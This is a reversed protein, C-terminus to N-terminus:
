IRVVSRVESPWINSFIVSHEIRTQKGLEKFSRQIAYTFVESYFLYNDRVHQTLQTGFWCILLVNISFTIYVAVGQSM